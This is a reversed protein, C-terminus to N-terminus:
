KRILAYYFSVTQDLAADLRIKAQGLPDIEVWYAADTKQAPTVIVVADETLGSPFIVVERENRPIDARGCQSPSFDIISLPKIDGAASLNLDGSHSRIYANSNMLVLDCRNSVSGIYWNGNVPLQLQSIFLSGTVAGGASTIIKRRLEQSLDEEEIFVSEGLLSSVIGPLQDETLVPQSNLLIDGKLSLGSSTVAIDNDERASFELWLEKVDNFKWYINQSPPVVASLSPEMSPEEYYYRMAKHRYGQCIYPHIVPYNATTKLGVLYEGPPYQSISSSFTYVCRPFAATSISVATALVSILPKSEFICVAQPPAIENKNKIVSNLEGGVYRAPKQVYALIKEVEKKIM